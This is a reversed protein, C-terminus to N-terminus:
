AAQPAPLLPASAPSAVFNTSGLVRAVDYKGASLLASPDANVHELWRDRLERAAAVLKPDNKAKPRPVRERTAPKAKAAPASETVKPAVYGPRDIYKIRGGVLIGVKGPAPGTVAKVTKRRPSEGIQKQEPEGPLIIPKADSWHTGPPIPLVLRGEGISGGTTEAPFWWPTTTDGERIRRQWFIHVRRKGRSGARFALPVFGISEWFHNAEIDQACWCCFLRCGYAARDFMAKVLTAGILSRRRGPVVNLQYIVGIDDHKHYRDTGISYGLREKAQHQGCTGQHPGCTGEAVLVHGLEIKGQLTRTSMFGLQKSHQKQLGDIFKLDDLTAVRVDVSCRPIPALASM